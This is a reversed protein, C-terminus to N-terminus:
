NKFDLNTEFTIFLVNYLNRLLPDGYTKLIIEHKSMQTTDNAKKSKIDFVFNSNKVKM